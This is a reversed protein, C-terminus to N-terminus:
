QCQFHGTSGKFATNNACRCTTSCNDSATGNNAGDDCEEFAEQIGNGCITSTSAVAGTSGANPSIPANTANNSPDSPVGTPNRNCANDNSSAGCVTQQNFDECFPVDPGGNPSQAGLSFFGLSSLIPDINTTSSVWSAVDLEGAAGPDASTNAINQFGILTNYYLKRALPYEPGTGHPNGLL